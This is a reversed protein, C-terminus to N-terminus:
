SVFDRLKCIWCLLFEKRCCVSYLPNTNPLILPRIITLYSVLKAM